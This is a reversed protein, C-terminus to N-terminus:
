YYPLLTPTTIQRFFPGKVDQRELNSMIM